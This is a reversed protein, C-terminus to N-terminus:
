IQPSYIELLNDYMKEQCYSEEKQPRPPPPPHRFLM